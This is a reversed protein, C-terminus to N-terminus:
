GLSLIRSATIAGHAVAKGAAGGKSGVVPEFVIHRSASGSVKYGAPQASRSLRLTPLSPLDALHEAAALECLRQRVKDADAGFLEDLHSTSNAAAELNPTAFHFEM